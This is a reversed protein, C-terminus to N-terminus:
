ASSNNKSDVLFLRAESLLTNLNCVKIACASNNFIVYNLVALTIVNSIEIDLKLKRRVLIANKSVDRVESPILSVGNSSRVIKLICNYRYATRDLRNVTISFRNYNVETGVLLYISLIHCEVDTSTHGVSISLWQLIVTDINRELSTRNVYLCEDDIEITLFSLNRSFKSSIEPSVLSFKDSSSISALCKNVNLIGAVVSDECDAIIVVLLRFLISKRGLEIEVVTLLNINYGNDINLSRLVVETM